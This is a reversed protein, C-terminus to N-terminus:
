ISQPSPWCGASLNFLDMQIWCNREGAACWKLVILVIRCWMMLSGCWWHFSQNLDQRTWINLHVFNRKVSNRVSWVVFCLGNLHDIKPLKCRISYIRTQKFRIKLSWIYSPLLQLSSYWAAATLIRCIYDNTSVFTYHTRIPWICHNPKTM